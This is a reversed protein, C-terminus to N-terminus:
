FATEFQEVVLAGAAVDEAHFFSSAALGGLPQAALTGLAPDLTALPPPRVGLKVEDAPSLARKRRLASRGAAGLELAWERHAALALGPLALRGDSKDISLNVEEYDFVEAVPAGFRYERQGAELGSTFRDFSPKGLLDDQNMALFQAAPFNDALTRDPAKEVDGFLLTEIAIEREGEITDSGLKDLRKALPLRKQVFQLVANPHAILPAPQDAPPPPLKAFSAFADGDQALQASWNAANELEPRLADVLRVRRVVTEREEGWEEDVHFSFDPLPWPTHVKARGVIHWRGPGALLGYIDVSAFDIGFVEVGAYVHIDTEFRFKPVLYVIANFEFGGEFSAIGVDGWVRLAAGGQVTASTVAFYGDFSLGVIGISFECGVRQFPSPLGPPLDTFRPHFGGASILFSPRDGFVARFAFQGHLSIFLVRSDRLVGDFWIQLPDFVVGGAFDVQLRLIALSKDVLPPLQVIVQGVFVIQSPEILLGLRATVLSPTGWGLELMPGIVFGGAKFPFIVRLQNFLQPANAVPNQPFLFSDLSGSALGGSLVDRDITHQVGILGGLGTLTFGFGLQIPPLNAAIILLLSWGQPNKTGLLGIAKVGIQMLRIDLIGGYEGRQPDFLLFGGGKLVGADIALGAGSPPKLGWDAAAVGALLNQLNLTTGLRDISGQFPGIQVQFSGSLELEVRNLGDAKRLEFTLFPIQVPSNPIAELPITARLGTGDKLRLGGARDAVLGFALAVEIQDGLIAGLFPDDGVKLVLRADKLDFELRPELNKLVIAGSLEGISFHTGDAPGLRLPQAANRRGFVLGIEVAGSFEPRPLSAPLPALPPLAFALAVEHSATLGVVFGDGAAQEAALTSRLRAHLKPPAAAGDWGLQLVLKRAADASKALEFERTLQAAPLPIAAALAAAPMGADADDGGFGRDIVTGVAMLALAVIAQPEAVAADSLANGDPNEGKLLYVLRRAPPRNDPEDADGSVILLLKALSYASPPKGPSAGLLRDIQRVVKVLDGLDAAGAQLDALVEGLTRLAALTEGTVLTALALSEAAAHTAAFGAPDVTAETKDLQLGLRTRLADGLPTALAPLPVQSQLEAVAAQFWRFARLFVKDATGAM